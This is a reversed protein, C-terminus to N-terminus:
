KYFLEELKKVYAMFDEPKTRKPLVNSTAKVLVQRVILKTSEDVSPKNPNNDRQFYCSKCRHNLKWQAEVEFTNNCSECEKTIMKM